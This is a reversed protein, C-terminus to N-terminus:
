SPAGAPFLWRQVHDAVAQLRRRTIHQVYVGAMGPLEHGMVRAVAHGDGVEDAITRFTRRLSYFRRESVGSRDALKRFEMGISDIHVVRTAAGSDDHHVNARVFRNGQQTLFAPGARRANWRLSDLTQPWLVADREIGTKPRPFSLVGTTLAQDVKEAPLESCDNNGYGCNLGLLIFAHLPGGAAADLLAQVQHPEIIARPSAAARVARRPPPKFMGGYRMPRDILEMDYAWNFVTRTTRIYSGVGRPGLHSSFRQRLQDFDIPRLALPDADHGFAALLDSCVRQYDELTRASLEGAELRQQKFRLFADCIRGLPYIAPPAGAGDHPFILRNM